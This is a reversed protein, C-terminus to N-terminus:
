LGFRKFPDQKAIAAAKKVNGGEVWDIIDGLWDSIAMDEDSAEKVKRHFGIATSRLEDIAKVAQRAAHRTKSVAGPPWSAQRGRLMEAIDNLETEIDM